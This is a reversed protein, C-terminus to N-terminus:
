KTVSEKRELMWPSSESSSATCAGVTGGDVLEELVDVVVVDVVVVVVVVVVVGRGVCLKGELEGPATASSAM